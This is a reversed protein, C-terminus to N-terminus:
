NGTLGNIQVGTVIKRGRQPSRSAAAQRLNSGAVSADVRMSQGTRLANSQALGGFISLIFRHFTGDTVM